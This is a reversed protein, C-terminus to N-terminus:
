KQRTLIVKELKMAENSKINLIQVKLTHEGTQLSIKGISFNQPFYPSVASKVVGNIEKDDVIIKFESGQSGGAYFLSVDYDTYIDTL